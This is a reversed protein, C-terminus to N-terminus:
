LNSAFRRLVLRLAALTKHHDPTTKQSVSKAARLKEYLLFFLGGLVRSKLRLARRLRATQGTPAAGL